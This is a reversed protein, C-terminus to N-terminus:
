FEESLDCWEPNKASILEMKKRRSGAKIQKERALAIHVDNTHEFYVLKHVNYLSTFGPVLSEKHEHHRRALDNTMGTYLVTHLKNTVIYVFYTKEM